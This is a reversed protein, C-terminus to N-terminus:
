SIWTQGPLGLMLLIRMQSQLTGFMLKFARQEESSLHKMCAECLKSESSVARYQKTTFFDTVSAPGKIPRNVWYLSCVSKSGSEYRLGISPIYLSDSLVHVINSEENILFM